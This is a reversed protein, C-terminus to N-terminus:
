PDCPPSCFLGVSHAENTALVRYFLTVSDDIPQSTQATKVGLSFSVLDGEVKEAARVRVHKLRHRVEVLFCMRRM